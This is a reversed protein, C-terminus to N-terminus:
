NEFLDFLWTFVNTMSGASSTSLLYLQFTGQNDNLAGLVKENGLTPITGYAVQFAGGNNPDVSLSGVFTGGTTFETLLSPESAQVNMSDANATLLHGQPTFTLGLPGHLHTNDSYVLTGKTVSTTRTSAQPISYIANDGEGAVFLTDSSASYASGAPGVVFAANDPRTTYGTAIVTSTALAFNPPNALNIRVVNGEIVNSVFLLVKTSTEYVSVGWPHTVTNASNLTAVVNAACDLVTIVGPGIGNGSMNLPVNGVLIFGSSLLNLTILGINTTATYFTAATGTPNSTDLTSVTSGTGQLNTANNFNAVLVNNASLTTCKFGSPIFQVGYPNADGNAPVTSISLKFPTVVGTLGPASLALDFCFFLL